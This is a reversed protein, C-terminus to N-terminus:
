LQSQKFENKAESSSFSIKAKRKQSAGSGGKTVGRPRFAFISTASTSSPKSAVPKFESEKAKPDNKSQHKRDGGSGGEITENTTQKKSRLHQNRKTSKGEGKPNIKHMGTPVLGIAPLHSREIIVSKAKIGIVDSLELATEVSEREEFQVLAWGKSRGTHKDRTIKAHVIQGCRPRLAEVVDIDETQPSLFSVKVTFPHAPYELKGVKVKHKPFQKNGKLEEIEQFNTPKRPSPPPPVEKQEASSAENETEEKQRKSPPPVIPDSSKNKNEDSAGNDDERKRKETSSEPLTNNDNEAELAMPVAVDVTDNIMPSTTTSFTTGTNTTTIAYAKALKKQISKQCESYSRDSGFNKEFLLYDRCLCRLSTEYDLEDPSLVMASSTDPVATPNSEAEAPKSQSKKQPKGVGKLARQYLFRVMRLNTLVGTPSCLMSSDVSTSASLAKIYAMYTGPHPPQCIKTARDHQQLVEALRERGQTRTAEDEKNVYDIARLFPALLYSEIVARDKALAARGEEVTVVITPDDSRYKKHNKRLYSDAEDYIERLDNCMDELDALVDVEIENVTPAHKKQSSLIQQISEPDDYSLTTTITGKGVKKKTTVKTQATKALVFLIRQRLIDLLSRFLDIPTTPNNSEGQIIFGNELTEKVILKTMLDEPDLITMEANAMALELKLKEKVLEISYPCNRIARDVV